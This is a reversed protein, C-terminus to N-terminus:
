TPTPARDLLISKVDVRQSDLRVRCAEIEGDALRVTLETVAPSTHM